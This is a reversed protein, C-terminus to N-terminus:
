VHICVNRTPIHTKVHAKTFIIYKQLFIFLMFLHYVFLEKYQSGLIFLAQDSKIHECIITSNSCMESDTM